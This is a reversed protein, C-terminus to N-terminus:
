TNIKHENIPIVYFVYALHYPTSIPIIRVPKHSGPRIRVLTPIGENLAWVTIPCLHIKNSYLFRSIAELDKLNALKGEFCLITDFYTLRNLFVFHSGDPLLIPSDAALQARFQRCIPKSQKLRIIEM